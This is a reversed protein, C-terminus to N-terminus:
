SRAISITARAYPGGSGSSLARLPQTVYTHINEWGSISAKRGDKTFLVLPTKFSEGCTPNEELLERIISREKVLPEATPDSVKRVEKHSGRVAAKYHDPTNKANGLNANALTTLVSLQINQSQRLTDKM